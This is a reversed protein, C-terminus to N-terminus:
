STRMEVLLEGKDVRRRLEKVAEDAAWAATEPQVKAAYVLFVQQWFERTSM